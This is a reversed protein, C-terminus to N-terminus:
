AGSQSQISGAIASGNGRASCVTMLALMLSPMVLPHGPDTSVHRLCHSAPSPPAHANADNSAFRGSSVLSSRLSLAQSFAAFSVFVPAIMARAAHLWTSASAFSAGQLV